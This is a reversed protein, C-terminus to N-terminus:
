NWTCGTTTTTGALFWIAEVKLKSQIYYFDSATIFILQSSNTHTHLTIKFHELSRVGTPTDTSNAIDQLTKMYSERGMDQGWRELKNATVSTNIWGTGDPTFSLGANNKDLQLLVHPQFLFDDGTILYGKVRYGIEMAIVACVYGLRGEIVVVEIFSFSKGLHQTQQTFSM